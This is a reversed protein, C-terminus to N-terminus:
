CGQIWVCDRAANAVQNAVELIEGAVDHDRNMRYLDPAAKARDVAHIPAQPALDDFVVVSDTEVPLTGLSGRRRDPL